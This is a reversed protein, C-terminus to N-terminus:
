ADGLVATPVGGCPKCVCPVAMIDGHLVVVMQIPRVAVAITAPAVKAAVNKGARVLQEGDADVDDHVSTEAVAFVVSWVPALM